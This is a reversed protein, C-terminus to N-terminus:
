RRVEKCRSLIYERWSRKSGKRKWLLAFEKDTFKADVRRLGSAAHYSSDRSGTGTGKMGLLFERHTRTGKASQYREFEEPTFAMQSLSHMKTKRLTKRRNGM